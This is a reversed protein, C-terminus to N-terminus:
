RKKRPKKGSAIVGFLGRQKKTLKKGHVTGDRLIERAKKKTPGKRKVM